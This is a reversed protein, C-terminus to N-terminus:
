NCWQRVGGHRSCTGRRTSSTSATGDQCIAMIGPGCFGSSPIPTRTNRQGVTAPIRVQTVQRVVAPRRSFGNTATPRSTSSVTKRVKPRQLATESLVSPAPTATLQVIIPPLTATARNASNSTGPIKATPRPAPVPTVTDPPQSQACGSVLLLLTAALRKM